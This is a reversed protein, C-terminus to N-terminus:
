FCVKIIHTKVVMKQKIIDINGSPDNLLEDIQSEIPNLPEETTIQAADKLNKVKRNLNYIKKRLESNEAKSQKLEKYCKQRRSSVKRKRTSPTTQPVKPKRVLLEEKEEEDDDDEEEVQESVSLIEESQSKVSKKSARYNRKRNSEHARKRQAQTGVLDATKIKHKHYYDRKQQLYIGSKVPDDKISQRYKAGAVRMQDARRRIQEATKKFM